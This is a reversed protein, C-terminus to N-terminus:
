VYLIEGGLKYIKKNISTDKQDIFLIKKQAKSANRITNMTGSTLKTETVVVIDSINAVYKNRELFSSKFTNEKPGISTLLLGDALINNALEKNKAPYVKKFNTPLIAITRGNNETATRHAVTDIGEALGSVIIFGDKVYNRTIKKTIHIARQSPHRTGVIAVRKKNKELLSTNGKAYMFLPMIDEPILQTINNNDYKFYIKNKDFKKLMKESRFLDIKFKEYERFQKSLNKEKVTFKKELEMHLLNESNFIADVPDIRLLFIHQLLTDNFGFQKLFFLESRVKVSM